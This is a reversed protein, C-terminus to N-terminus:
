MQETQVEELSQEKAGRGSGGLNRTRAEIRPKIVPHSNTQQISETKTLKESAKEGQDVVYGNAIELRRNVPPLRAMKGGIKGTGRPKGAEQGGSFEGVRYRAVVDETGQSVGGMTAGVLGGLLGGLPILSISGLLYMSGGHLSAHGTVEAIAKPTTLTPQETQSDPSAGAAFIGTRQAM